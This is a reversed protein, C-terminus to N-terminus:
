AFSECLRGLTCTQSRRAEVVESVREACLHRGRTRRNTRDLFPHSVRVVARGRDVGVVCWVRAPAHEVRPAGEASETGVSFVVEHLCERRYRRSARARFCWRGTVSDSEGAGESATEAM